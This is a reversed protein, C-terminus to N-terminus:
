TVRGRWGPPALVVDPRGVRQPRPADPIDDQAALRLAVTNTQRNEAFTLFPRSVTADRPREITLGGSIDDKMADPHSEALRVCWWALLEVKERLAQLEARPDPDFAM